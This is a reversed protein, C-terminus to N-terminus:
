KNNEALARESQKRAEHKAKEKDILKPHRSLDTAATM